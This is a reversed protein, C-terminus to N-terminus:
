QLLAPSPAVSDGSAAQSYCLRFKWYLLWKIAIWRAYAVKSGDPQLERLVAVNPKQRYFPQPGKTGWYRNGVTDFAKRKISCICTKRIDFRSIVIKKNSFFSLLLM